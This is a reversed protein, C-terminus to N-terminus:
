FAKTLVCVANWEITKSVEGTATVVLNGVSSNFAATVAVAYNVTGASQSLNSQVGGPDIVPAGSDKNIMGSFKWSRREGLADTRRSVLTIDYLWTTNNPIVLRTGSVGNLFLETPTANSTLATLYFTQQVTLPVSSNPGILEWATGTWVNLQANVSDYWLNGQALGLTPQSGAVLPNSVKEFKETDEDTCVYLKQDTSNWWLQGNIPKTPATNNAFNELMWLFNQDLPAGYADKRKGILNLNTTSDITNDSVIIFPTVTDDSKYINYAM